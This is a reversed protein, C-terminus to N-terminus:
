LTLIKYWLYVKITGDGTTPNGSLTTLILSENEKVVYENYPYEAILENRIINATDSITGFQDIHHTTLSTGNKLYLYINTAYAASGFTYNLVIRTAVVAKGSGPASVLTIPTDYIALLEESTVLRSTFKEAYDDDINSVSDILAAFQAETPTDGTEFYTKLVTRTAM